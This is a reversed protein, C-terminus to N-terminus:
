VLILIWNQNRFQNTQIQVGFVQLVWHISAILRTIAVKIHNNKAKCQAVPNQAKSTKAIVLVLILKALLAIHEQTQTMWVWVRLKKKKPSLKSNVKKLFIQPPLVQHLM